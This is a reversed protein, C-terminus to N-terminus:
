GPTKITITFTWTHLTLFTSYHKPRPVGTHGSAATSCGGGGAVGVTPVTAVSWVRYGTCYGCGEAVVACAAAVNQLWMRCDKCCGGSSSDSIFWVIKINGRCGFFPSSEYTSPTPTTDPEVAVCGSSPWVRCDKRCGCGMVVVACM